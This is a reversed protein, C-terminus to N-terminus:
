AHKVCPMHIAVNSLSNHVHVYIVHIKILSLKSKATQMYSSKHHFVPLPGTLNPLSDDCSNQKSYRLLGYVILLLGSHTNITGFVFCAIDHLM